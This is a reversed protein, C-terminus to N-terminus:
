NFINRRVSPLMHWFWAIFLMLVSILGFIWRADQEANELKKLPANKVASVAERPHHVHAFEMKAAEATNKLLSKNFASLHEIVEDLAGEPASEGEQLDKVYSLLNPYNGELVAEEKTWYGVVEQLDNVKPVPQPSEGGVGLLVGQVKEKQELVENLRPQSHHPMEDADTIMVLNLNRKYAEKLSMVFARVVWSDGIWRMRTDLRGVVQDIAPFHQCIELPEFLVISEDGAFLAVSVRSGCPLSAMAERVSAKALDLRSARPHPYSVDRVNMSESIDIVFLTDRVHSPMQMTPSFLVPLLVLFALLYFLAGNHWNRRFFRLALHRFYHWSLWKPLGIHKSSRM